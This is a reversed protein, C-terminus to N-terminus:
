DSNNDLGFSDGSDEDSDENIHLRNKNKINIEKHSTYNKNVSRNKKKKIEEKNIINNPDNNKNIINSSSKNAKLVKGSEKSNSEKIIKGNSVLYSFEHISKCLSPNYSNKVLNKNYLLRKKKNKKRKKKKDRAANKMRIIKSKIHWKELIVKYILRVNNEYKKFIKKMKEIKLIDKEEEKEKEIKQKIEEKDYKMNNLVFKFFKKNLINKSGKEKNEIFKKLKEKIKYKKIEEERKSALSNYYIKWFIKDKLLKIYKDIINIINKLHIEKRIDIENEKKKMKQTIDRFLNIKEKMINNENSMKKLLFKGLIISKLRKVYMENSKNLEQMQIKEMQNLDISYQNEIFLRHNRYDQFDKLKKALQMNDKMIIANINQNKKNEDILTKLKNEINRNDILRNRLEKNEAIVNKLKSKLRKERNDKKVSKNVIGFSVGTDKHLNSVIPDKSRTNRLKYKNRISFCTMKNQKNSINIKFIKWYKNKWNLILDQLIDIGRKCCVYLSVNNYLKIKVLYGRLVSQILIAAKIYLDKQSKDINYIKFYDKEKEKNNRKKQLTIDVSKYIYNKHAYNNKKTKTNILNNKEKLKNNKKVNIPNIYYINNNYTNNTTTTTNKRWNHLQKKAPRMKTKDASLEIEHVIAKNIINQCKNKIQRKQPGLYFNINEQYQNYKMKPSQNDLIRNDYYENENDYYMNENYNYNNESYESNDNENDGYYDINKHSSIEIYNNNNKQTPLENYTSYYYNIKKPIYRIIGEENEVTIHSSNSEINYKHRNDNTNYYEIRKYPNYYDADNYFYNSNKYDVKIKPSNDELMEDNKKRIKSETNDIKAKAASNSKIDKMSQALKSHYISM